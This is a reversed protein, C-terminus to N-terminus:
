VLVRGGVVQKMREVHRYPLKITGMLVKGEAGHDDSGGTVLLGLKRALDAYFLTTEPDHEPYYVELGLLGAKKLVVIDQVSVPTKASIGPHALVPIGRAGRILRVAEEPTIKFREVYAPGGRGIYRETFAEKIDSVYGKEIMARAIHPRGILTSGAIEKVRSFEIEIGMKNLKKVMEEARKERARSTKKIVARLETNDPDIFYGLIHFEEEGKLTSLEVGPIGEIGAEEAAQLFERVGDVTDHDTLAVASFGLGRARQILEEPRDTGDSYTSHLHLDAYVM